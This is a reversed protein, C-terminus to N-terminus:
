SRLERQTRIWEDPRTQPTLHRQTRDEASIKARVWGKVATREFQCHPHHQDRAREADRKGWADGSEPDYFTRCVCEGYRASPANCVQWMEYSRFPPKLEHANGRPDVLGIAYLTPSLMVVGTKYTKAVTSALQARLPGGLLWYKVVDSNMRFLPFGDFHSGVVHVHTM